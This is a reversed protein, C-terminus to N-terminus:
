REKNKLNYQNQSIEDMMAQEIRKQEEKYRSEQKEKLIELIRKKQTAKILVRQRSDALQQQEKLQRSLRKLDQKVGQQYNSHIQLEMITFGQRKSVDLQQERESLSQKIEDMHTQIQQVVQLQEAFEKQKLKEFRQRVNLATQLKFPKM